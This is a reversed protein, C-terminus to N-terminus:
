LISQNDKKHQSLTASVYNNPRNQWSIFSNSNLARKPISFCVIIDEQFITLAILNIQSFIAYMMFFILNFILYSLAQSGRLNFLTKKKKKPVSRKLMDYFDDVIM